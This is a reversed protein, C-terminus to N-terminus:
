HQATAVLVRGSPQEPPGFVVPEAPTLGGALVVEQVDQDSTYLVHGEAPFDRQAAPPMHSKLQYGMVLRGGPLLLNKVQRVAAQPDHWFYLVHVAVVLDVPAFPSLDAADGQVLDLRGSRVAERNRKAAHSVAVPSPDAGVVRARPFADLLASLGVGPGFGLEAVVRADTSASAAAHQVVARNFTANNRAMFRAAVGGLVGSPSGFQRGILGVYGGRRFFGSESVIMRM